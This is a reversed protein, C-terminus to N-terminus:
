DDCWLISSKLFLSLENVKSIWFIQDRGEEAGRSRWSGLDRWWTVAKKCRWGLTLAAMWGDAGMFYGRAEMCLCPQWCDECFINIKVLEAGPSASHPCRRGPSSFVLYLTWGRWSRTQFPSWMTQLLLLVQEVEVDREIGRGASREDNNNQILFQQRLSINPGQILKSFHM